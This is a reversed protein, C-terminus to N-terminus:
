IYSSVSDVFKFPADLRYNGFNTNSMENLNNQM